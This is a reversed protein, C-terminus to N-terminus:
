QKLLNFSHPNGAINASFDLTMEIIGACTLVRGGPLLRYFNPGFSVTSNIGDENVGIIDGTAPDITLILDDAGENIYTGDIITIQNDGPGLVVERTFDTEGFFGAFTSATVDYTGVLEEIDVSPCAIELGIALQTTSETGPTAGEVSDLNLVIQDSGAPLVAGPITTITFSGVFSGAPIVPNLTSISYFAPDLSTTEDVSISIARDSNSLTTVGVTFTSVEEQAPNFAIRPTSSGGFGSLSATDASNPDIQPIPDEECSVAVLGTLFLFVLSKYINKM